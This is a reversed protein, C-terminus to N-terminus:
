GFLRKLFSPNFASDPLNGGSLNPWAIRASQPQVFEVKNLTSGGPIQTTYPNVENFINAM